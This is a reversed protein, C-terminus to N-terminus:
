LFEALHVQSSPLGLRETMLQVFIEEDISPMIIMTLLTDLSLDLYKVTDKHQKLCRLFWEIRYEQQQPNALTLDDEQGLGSLADFCIQLWLRHRLDVPFIDLPEGADTPLSLDRAHTELVEVLMPWGESVVQYMVADTKFPEQLIYPVVKRAIEYWPEKPRPIEDIYLIRDEDEDGFYLLSGLAQKQKKTLPIGQEQAIVAEWQLYYGSEINDILDDVAREIDGSDDLDIYKFFDNVPVDSDFHWQLHTPAVSKKPKRRSRKVM